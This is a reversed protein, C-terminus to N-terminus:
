QATILNASLHIINIIVVADFFYLLMAVIWPTPLKTDDKHKM